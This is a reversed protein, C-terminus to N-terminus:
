TISRGRQKAYNSSRKHCKDCWILNNYFNYGELAIETQTLNLAFYTLWYKKTENFMRVIFEYKLWKPALSYM